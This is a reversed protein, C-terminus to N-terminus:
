SKSQRLRVRLMDNRVLESPFYMGAPPASSAPGGARSPLCARSSAFAAASRPTWAKENKALKEEIREIERLKKTLKMAQKEAASSPRAQRNGRRGPPSPGAIAAPAAAAKRGPRGALPPPKPNPGPGRRRPSRTFRRPSKRPAAMTLVQERSSGCPHLSSWLPRFLLLSSHKQGHQQM